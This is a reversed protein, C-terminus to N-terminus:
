SGEADPRLVCEVATLDACVTERGDIRVMWSPTAAGIEVREIEVDAPAEIREYGLREVLQEVWAVASGDGRVRATRSSSHRRRPRLSGTSADVVITGTSFVETLEGSSALHEPPGTIVRRAPDVLWLQDALRVALDLDHTSMLVALGTTHALSALLDILEIRRPLDLYATPEDLVLLSPEQALARAVMLRQREGDSLEGVRRHALAGADVADIAWRVASRDRAKLKGTRGTHPYRGLAVLEDGLMTGVEVRDTLVVSVKRALTRESFSDLRQGDIEIRGALPPQSRTLTRLLTSKGAGNPGLVCVLRGRPVTLALGSLVETPRRRRVYGVALAETTLAATM